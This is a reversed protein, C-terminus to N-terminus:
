SNRLLKFKLLFNKCLCNHHADSFLTVYRSVLLMDESGM